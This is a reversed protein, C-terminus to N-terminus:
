VKSISLNVAEANVVVAEAVPIDVQPLQIEVGGDRSTSASNGWFTNRISNAVVASCCLAAGVAVLGGAVACGGILQDEVTTSWDIGLGMIEEGMKPASLSSALGLSMELVVVGFTLGFSANKTDPLCCGLTGAMAGTVLGGVLATMAENHVSNGRIAAGIATQAAGFLGM